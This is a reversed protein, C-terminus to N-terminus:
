AQRAEKRARIKEMIVKRKRYAVLAALLTAVGLAPLTAGGTAGAAPAGAGLADLVIEIVPPATEGTDPDVLVQDGGAGVCGTLSIALIAAFVFSRM